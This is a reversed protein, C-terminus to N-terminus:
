KRSKKTKKKNIKRVPKKFKRKKSPKKLTKKLPKKKKVLKKTIKKLTKKLPKKKIKKKKVIKKKPKKQKLKELARKKMSKRRAEKRKAAKEKEEKKRVRSKIKEVKERELDIEVNVLELDRKLKDLNKKMEKILRLNDKLVFISGCESCTFNYLLANEESLEIHCRDCVYFRKAERSKVRHEVQDIKKLLDGKLFELSKLVEIKWFYTYWGKRKDKKRISSVLGHDSIKYLINRTQNITLDLKKAIIFENVHKKTDLLEVIEETQKGIIINM